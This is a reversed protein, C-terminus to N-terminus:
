YYGKGEENLFVAPTSYMEKPDIFYLIGCLDKECHHLLYLWISVTFRCSCFYVFFGSRILFRGIFNSFCANWKLKAFRNRVHLRWFLVCGRCHFGESCCYKPSKSRHDGKLRASKHYSCSLLILSHLKFWNWFPPDSNSGSGVDILFQFCSQSLKSGVERM